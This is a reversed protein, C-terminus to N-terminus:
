LRHNPGRPAGGSVHFSGPPTGEGGWKGGSAEHNLGGPDAGHWRRRFHGFLNTRTVWWVFAAVLLVFGALEDM